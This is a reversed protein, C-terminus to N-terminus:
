RASVTPKPAQVLIIKHRFWGSFSPRWCSSPWCWALATSANLHWPSRFTWQLPSDVIWARFVPALTKPCLWNKGLKQFPMSRVLVFLFPLLPWLVTRLVDHLKAKCCKARHCLLAASFSVAQLDGQHLQWWGSKSRPVGAKHSSDHTTTDSSISTRTTPLSISCSPIEPRKSCGPNMQLNVTGSDALIESRSSCCRMEAPNSPSAVCDRHCTLLLHRPVINGCHQVPQSPQHNRWIDIVQVKSCYKLSSWWIGSGSSTLFNKECSGSMMVSLSKARGCPSSSAIVSNACTWFICSAPLQIGTQERSCLSWPNRVQFHITPISTEKQSPRNKPAINTEPLTHCAYRESRKFKEILTTLCQLSYPHWHHQSAIRVFQVPEKAHSLIIWSLEVYIHSNNLM